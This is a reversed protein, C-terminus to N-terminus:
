TLPTGSVACTPADGNARLSITVARIPSPKLPSIAESFTADVKVHFAVAARGMSKFPSMVGPAIQSKLKASFRPAVVVSRAAFVTNVNFSAVHSCNVTEGIYQNGAKRRM